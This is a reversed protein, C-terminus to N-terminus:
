RFAPPPARGLPLNEGPKGYAQTLLCSVAPNPIDVIEALRLDGAVSVLVYAPERTLGRVAELCAIIALVAGRDAIFADDAREIARQGVM